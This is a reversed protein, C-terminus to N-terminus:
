AAAPEDIQDGTIAEAVCAVLDRSTPPTVANGCMRVKVRQSSGLLVFGAAFAMGLKVEDATLMRFRCDEVAIRSEILADGEIATQTPMPQSVSRMAGTDYAYLVDPNWLLSQHGATTFTRAPENIPTCMEAGGTNNRMLLGHHNGAAAVTDLPDHVSKPRNNNRLPIVVVGDTERTTRTRMPESVPRADDNWTGGSPVLLGTENRATQASMPRSVTEAAKGERGEVPVLMGRLAADQEAAALQHLGVATATMLPAHAIAKSMSTHVTRLPDDIPWTRVGPKREFTNGAAELVISRPMYRRLGAEIRAMTKPKLPEKRDGIRQGPNTLDIAAAAPLVYPQVVANRCAIRPCRFVYQRGYSGQLNGPRDLNKPARM